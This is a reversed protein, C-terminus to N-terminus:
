SLGYKGTSPDKFLFNKPPYMTFILYLFILISILIASLANILPYYKKKNLVLLGFLWSAAVSLIFIIIDVAIISRGISISYSYYLSPILILPTILVVAFAFIYNENKFLASAIFFYLLTPFISLKLHEWTSENAPFLLGIIFSKNSWDYFFHSLGGIVIVFAMGICCFVLNRKFYKM